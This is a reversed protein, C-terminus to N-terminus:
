YSPIHEFQFGIASSTRRRKLQSTSQQAALANPPCHMEAKSRSRHLYVTSTQATAHLHHNVLNTNQEKGKKGEWALPSFFRFSSGAMGIGDNLDWPSDWTSRMDAM